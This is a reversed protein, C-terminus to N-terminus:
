EIMELFKYCDLTFMKDVISKIGKEAKLSTFLDQGM